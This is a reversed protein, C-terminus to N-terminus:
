ISLKTGDLCIDNKASEYKYLCDFWLVLREFIRRTYIGDPFKVPDNSVQLLIRGRM